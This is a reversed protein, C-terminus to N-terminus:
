RRAVGDLVVPEGGVITHRVRGRLRRGAFPTTRTHSAGQGPDLTWTVTPDIVALDAPAGPEVVGRWATGYLISAPKWSLAGILEALGVAVPAGPGPGVPAAGPVEGAQREGGLALETLGLALTWQLMSAGPAAEDFPVEKDEVSHPTHASVVADLEGAALHGVLAARDEVSRLPPRFKTAPDFGACDADVLLLNAMAVEASVALGRRRASHVMALSAATSLTRFHLTAGTLRALALDRMVVVEEAEAPIGAIGLRSSWVGEHLHGGAALARDEAFQCIVVGLGAAYEFARRLLRADGIGHGDDSFLRVGLAALEGMPSLREGKAGVSVSAAPLVRCAADAAIARLERVAAASDCVPDGDPRAVITTYGGLAAARAASAVTEAEELGPEGVGANLDVLGPTLLCGGADLVRDGDLQAGVAAIKGDRVAVDAVRRGAADLVTAGRIVFAEPEPM